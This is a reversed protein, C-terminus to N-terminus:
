IRKLVDWKNLEKLFDPLENWMKVANSALSTKRALLKTNLMINNTLNQRTNTLNNSKMVIRQLNKPLPGNLIKHVYKISHIKILDKLKMIKLKTFIENTHSRFHKNAVHRIIKKQEKIIKEINAHGWLACCYELDPKILSNYLLLRIREPLYNKNKAILFTNKRIKNVVHSVHENWNLDEDLHVGVYKFSKDKEKKGIRQLKVENLIIKHNLREPTKHNFVMFVTKEPHLTLGNANFWQAAEKLNENTFKILEEETDASTV